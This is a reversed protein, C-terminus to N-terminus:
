SILAYFYHFIIQYLLLFRYSLCYVLLFFDRIYTDTVFAKEIIDVSSKFFLLFVVLEISLTCFVCPVGSPLIHLSSYACLVTSM